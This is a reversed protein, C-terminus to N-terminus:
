TTKPAEAETELEPLFSALECTFGPLVDEGSLEGPDTVSYESGDAKLVNVERSEPYVIWMLRVGNNLYARVKKRLYAANDHTSVIEDILDPTVAANGKSARGGVLREKRTFTGDPRPLQFESDRVPVGTGSSTAIGLKNRYVFAAVQAMLKLEVEASLESMEIERLRGCILEYREPEDLTELDEITWTREATASTM